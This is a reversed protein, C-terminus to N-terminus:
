ISSYPDLDRLEGTESSIFNILSFKIEPFQACYWKYNEPSIRFWKFVGSGHITTYVECEGTLYDKRLRLQSRISQAETRSVSM